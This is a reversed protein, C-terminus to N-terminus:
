NLQKVRCIDKEAQEYGKDYVTELIKILRMFNETRSTNNLKQATEMFEDLKKCLFVEKEVSNIM